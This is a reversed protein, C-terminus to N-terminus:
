KKGEAGLLNKDYCFRIEAIGTVKDPVIILAVRERIPVRSVNLELNNISIKNYANVMRNGRLAFIDKTSIFPSPIVFERFLSRKDDIARYFRIDPVEGTTSHVQYSNYRKIEAAL